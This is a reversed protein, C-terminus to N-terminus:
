SVVTEPLPISWDRRALKPDIRWIYYDVQQHPHEDWAERAQATFDRRLNEEVAQLWKREMFGHGVEQGEARARTLTREAMLRWMEEIRSSDRTGAKPEGGTIAQWQLDIVCHATQRPGHRNKLVIVELHTPDATSDYAYERYLGLVVGAANEIEGSERLDALTPRKDVRSEVGRSIQSLAIVVCDLARALKKLGRAVGAVEEQRTREGKGEVLQLYDVLIVDPRRARAHARITAVSQEPSDIVDIPLAKLAQLAQEAAAMDHPAPRALHMSDVRALNAVWRDMLEPASMELSAFLVRNGADAFNLALQGAVTTKGMAPRAAIVYSEGPRCGFIVEDLSSLGTPIARIRGEARDSLLGVHAMAMDSISALGDGDPTDLAADLVREAAELDLAQTAQAAERGADGVERLRAYTRLSAAYEGIADPNLAVVEASLDILAQYGGVADLQGLVKLRDTVVIPDVPLGSDDLKAIVKAILKHAPSYWCEPRLASAISAAHPDHLAAGLLAREAELSHPATV